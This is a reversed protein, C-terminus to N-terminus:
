QYNGRITMVGDSIEVGTVVFNESAQNVMENAVAEDIFSQAKARLDDPAALPGIQASVLEIRLIGEETIKPQAVVKLPLSIGGDRYVGNIQVKEDRLFIQLDGVLQPQQKQMEFVALSTIESETIALKIEGDSPSSKKFENVKELLNDVAETTVPIREVSTLSTRSGLNCALSTAVLFILLLIFRMQKM